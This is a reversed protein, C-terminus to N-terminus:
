GHDNIHISSDEFLNFNIGNFLFNIFALQLTQFSGSWLTKSKSFIPEVALMLPCVINKWRKNQELPCCLNCSFNINLYLLRFYLYWATYRVYQMLGRKQNSESCQLAWFALILPMCPFATTFAANDELYCPFDQLSKLIVM